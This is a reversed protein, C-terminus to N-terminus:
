LGEFDVFEERSIEDKSIEDFTSFTLAQATEFRERGLLHFLVMLMMSAKSITTDKLIINHHEDFAIVTNRGYVIGSCEMDHFKEYYGEYSNPSFLLGNAIFEDNETESKDIDLIASQLIHHNTFMSFKESVELTKFEGARNTFFVHGLRFVNLNGSFSTFQGLAPSNKWTKKFLPDVEPLPFITQLMKEGIDISTLEDLNTLSCKALNMITDYNEYFFAELTFCLIKSKDMRDIDVNGNEDRPFKDVSETAIESSRKKDLQSFKDVLLDRNDHLSQFGGLLLRSLNSFDIMPININLSHIFDADEDKWFVIFDVNRELLSEAKIVHTLECLSQHAFTSVVYVGDFVFAFIIPVERIDTEKGELVGTRSVNSFKPIENKRLTFQLLHPIKTGYDKDDVKIKDWSPKNPQALSVHTGQIIHWSVKDKKWSKFDVRVRKTPGRIMPPDITRFYANVARGKVSHHFVSSM